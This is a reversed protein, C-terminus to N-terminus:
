KKRFIMLLVPLLFLDTIVAIFLISSVYLGILFTSKFDSFILSIFGGCLILTTLVIAKGTSLYTRKLAIFFSNHKATEIKFKSLFHITDDVAIGFAITFIISTSMNITTGFFGMLGGIIALPIVNPILSIFAMKISKFIAGMILAILLFAISLGAIMNTALFENNKDVLLATGTMKYDILQTNVKSQFFRKFHINIENAKASGIDDMKGTFRCEKQNSRVIKDLKGKLNLKEIKNKLKNYDSISDPIKYYKSNGSHIAKNASKIIAVPSFIFGAKYENYLYSEIKDMEVMVEHDFINSSTDKVSISMEFPRIGSYNNEFFRFDQQLPNKESLDELLHYDIKLQFIGIISLAIIVGYVILIKIPNKITYIFSKSLIKNWFLEKVNKVSIKPKKILSLIAPLFLIAVGFALVVGIATYMGFEQMPKIPVMMLTIFGVATTISTLFTAIGVERFTTKIANLKPQGKRLEEIYKNMIHVADSMGVVFLITPLLTTMVDLSKGFLQMIGLVGVIAIIVTALPIIIGFFSRFSLFLFITILFISISLFLILEVKMKTLYTKQGRIKGAYHTEKFDYKKLLSEIDTLLEDSAKKSIIQSNHVVICLSQFDSSFLTNLYEKAKSIRISDNQLKEPNNIHLIPIEMFGFSSIIPQKIQTPSIISEVHNLNELENSFLDVKKLFNSNFISQNEGISILVYDNDNEYTERFELFYDLDPDNQPFFHEFNYDFDLKTALFSSIGTFLIIGVIILISLRKTLKLLKNELRM